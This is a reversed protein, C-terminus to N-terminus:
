SYKYENVFFKITNYQGNKQKQIKQFTINLEIDVTKKNLKKGDFIYLETTVIIHHPIPEPMLFTYLKEMATKESIGFSIDQVVARVFGGSNLISSYENNFKDQLTKITSASSYNQMYKMKEVFVLHQNESKEYTEFNTVYTKITYYLINLDNSHYIPNIKEIKPFLSADYTTHVVKTVAERSMVTNYAENTSFFAMIVALCIIVVMIIIFRLSQIYKTYYWSKSADFYEKM